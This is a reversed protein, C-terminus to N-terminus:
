RRKDLTSRFLLSLLMAVSASRHTKKERKEEKKRREKEKKREKKRKKVEENKEKKGEKKREKRRKREKLDWPLTRIHRPNNNGRFGTPTQFQTLM